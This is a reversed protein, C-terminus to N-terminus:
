NAPADAGPRGATVVIPAAMRRAEADLHTWWSQPTPFDGSATWGAGVWHVAPVGPRARAIALYHDGTEEWEVLREAPLLVATGLEGHGGTRRTVPGWGALWAWESGRSTAGVMGPRKVLGIAYPVEAAESRFTSETRYLHRGADITIRKTEAVRMGGADWPAYDLELIARIPGNALIRHSTFNDARYLSDNQWVATGGAGLTPGVDFFDAGEGTDTHYADQGKAYWRDLVLARVRKPWVDVGSSSLPQPTRKLGQGYTRFAIRDSEWAADDRPADHRVAVRPEFRAAARAEVTFVRLEEPRFDGLFLLADTRGDADADLAQSAVERGNADLVRVREASAAPLRQRVTAWPVEVVEDLREVPLPNRATLVFPAASPAATRRQAPLAALPLALAALALALTARARIPRASM